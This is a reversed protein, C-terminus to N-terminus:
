TKIRKRSTSLTKKPKHVPPCISLTVASGRTRTVNWFDKCSPCYLRKFNKTHEEEVEEVESVVEGDVVMAVVEEEDVVGVESGEEVEVEEQLNVFCLIMLCHMQAVALYDSGFLSM